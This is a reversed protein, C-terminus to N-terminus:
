SLVINMIEYGGMLVGTIGTDRKDSNNNQREVLDNM